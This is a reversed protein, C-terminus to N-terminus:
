RRGPERRAKYLPSGTFHLHMKAVLEPWPPPVYGTAERFRGGDLSRDCAFDEDRDIVIRKGYRAAVLHLLDHKSVSDSAVHYLGSLDANPVVYEAVIREIEVTPFGSFIARAYGRV